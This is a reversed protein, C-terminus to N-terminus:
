CKIAVTVGRAAAQILRVMNWFHRVSRLGTKISSTSEPEADSLTMKVPM